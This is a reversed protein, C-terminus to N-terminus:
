LYILTFLNCYGELFCGFFLLVMAMLIKKKRERREETELFGGREKKRNMGQILLISYGLFYFFGHPLVLLSYIGIGTLGYYLILIEMTRGTFFGMGWAYAGYCWPTFSSTVMFWLLFFVCFRKWLSIFMLAKSDISVNKLRYFFDPSFIEENLSASQGRQVTLVVGMIFGLLFICGLCLTPPVRKLTLKKM